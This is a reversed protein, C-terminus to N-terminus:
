TRSREVFHRGASRDDEDLVGRIEDPGFQTTGEPVDFICFGDEISVPVHATAGRRALYSLARGVSTRRAEALSKAVDLVDADIDLTTRM